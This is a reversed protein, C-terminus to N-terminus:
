LIDAYEVLTFLPKGQLREKGKLGPLEILCACEVVHADAVKGILELAAALTGGTAILDDVILVRDGPKVSGVCMEIRDKGYELTYEAGITEGPLKGPKRLPVFSCKLALALPAGFIFGRAEIGAVVDVKQDRYREAFIDIVDQFLEPVAILSTVDKFQIGAIPFDPVTRIADKIRASREALTLAM